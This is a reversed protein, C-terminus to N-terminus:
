LEEVPCIEDSLVEITVRLVPMLVFLTGLNPAPTTSVSKKFTLPVVTTPRLAESTRASMPACATKVEGTVLGDIVPTDEPEIVPTM